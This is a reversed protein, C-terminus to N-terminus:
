HKDGKLGIQTVEKPTRSIKMNLKRKVESGPNTTRNQSLNDWFKVRYHVADM